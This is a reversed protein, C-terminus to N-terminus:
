KKMRDKREVIILTDFGLGKQKACINIIGCKECLTFKHIGLELM